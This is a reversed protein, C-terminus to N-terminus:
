GGSALNLTEFSITSRSLSLYINKIINQLNEWERPTIIQFKRLTAPLRGGKVFLQTFISTERGVSGELIDNLIALTILSIVEPIATVNPNFPVTTIKFIHGMKLTNNDSYPDLLLHWVVPDKLGIEDGGIELIQKMWEFQIQELAVRARATEAENLFVNM